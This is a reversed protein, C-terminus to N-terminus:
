LSELQNPRKRVKARETRGQVAVRLERGQQATFSLCGRMAQQIQGHEWKPRMIGVSSHGNGGLLLHGVEHAIACGLITPAEFESNDSRARRQAPGYYVTALIPAVAFGFVNDAFINQNPEAVVRLVVEGAELAVECAEGPVKAVSEVPCDLWRTRLGAKWLIREAEREAQAMTARSAHSYNTVRIRILPDTESASSPEPLMFGVASTLGVFLSIACLKRFPDKLADRGSSKWRGSRSKM